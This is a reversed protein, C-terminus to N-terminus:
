AAIPDPEPRHTAHAAHVPSLQAWLHQTAYARYPRWHEALRSSATPSGDHGLMELARRVGLDTPLYADPDRLGRMAIYNVTWPGIGPLTRLRRLTEDRDAGGDVDVEGRALAGALAVLARRRGAPMALEGAEALAAATPFLHTVGGLPRALPRGYAAVLHGALTRAGAVSVQQGLVARLALEDGDM